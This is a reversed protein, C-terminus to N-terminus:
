AIHNEIEIQSCQNNDKSLDFCDSELHEDEDKDENKTNNDNDNSNDKKDKTNTDAGKRQPLVKAFAETWNGLEVFRILIEFVHNVTLVPTSAMTCYEKLPLKMTRIGQSVAKNYTAGKMSNRDVIGGIIYAYNNNLDQLTETADSTLYILEKDKIIDIYDLPSQEIGVWESIHNKSIQEITRPGLGTLYIKSPHATRKNIGYSFLIQQALSKLPRDRHDNEWSCDIVISFNQSCLKLFNLKEKEKREKREEDTENRRNRTLQTDNSEAAQHNTIENGSVHTEEEHKKRKLEQKQTKKLVKIEEWREAKRKRRLENKSIKVEAAVSKSGIEDGAANCDAASPILDM